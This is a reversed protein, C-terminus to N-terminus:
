WMQLAHVITALELDHPTYNVEHQKLKRSEYTVVKGDQMFVGTLGDGLSNKTVVFHGNPYPIVLIPAFTLKQKLLQFERECAETWEYLKGKRQLSTIPAAIKSFGEVFKRYYGALGM